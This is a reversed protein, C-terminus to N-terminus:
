TCSVETDTITYNNYNYVQIDNIYEKGVCMAEAGPYTNLFEATWGSSNYANYFAWGQQGGTGTTIEVTSGSTSPTVTSTGQIDSQYFNGTGSLIQFSGSIVIATNDTPSVSQTVASGTADLYAITGNVNYGLYFTNACDQSTVNVTTKGPVREGLYISGTDAVCAVSSTTSNFFQATVGTSEIPNYFVVDVDGTLWTGSATIQTTTGTLSSSYTTGFLINSGHIGIESGGIRASGTVAAFVLTENVALSQTQPNYNEDLYTLDKSSITTNESGHWYVAPTPTPTPTATPSSSPTPTPGPTSSPTPTPPIPTATPTSTPTSSPTPTPPIDTATPTPTPTSSATPTPPVPTATPTPTPTSSATPTPSTTPTPTPTPSTTPTPTATPTPTQTPSPTPTPPIYGPIKCYSIGSATSEINITAVWGSAKDGFAEILPVINIFSLSFDYQVPGDLFYAYVDYIGQETNSLSFRRDEDSIKPVDLSYLEFTLTRVRGDQGSLGQSSLPRMFLLPYGRNVVADLNDISGHGFGKFFENEGVALEFVNVIEQYNIM